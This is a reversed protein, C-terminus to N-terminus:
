QVSTFGTNQILVPSKPAFCRNTSGSKRGGAAVLARAPSIQVFRPSVLTAGPQHPSPGPLVLTPHHHNPCVPTFYRNRPAPQHWGPCAWRRALAVPAFRSLVLSTQPRRSNAQFLSFKEAVGRATLGALRSRRTLAPALLIKAPAMVKGKGLSAVIFAPNLFGTM